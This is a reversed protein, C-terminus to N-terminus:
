RGLLLRAFGPGGSGVVLLDADSSLKNLAQASHRGEVARDAGHLPAANPGSHVGLEALLDHEEFPLDLHARALRRRVAAIFLGDGPVVHAAIVDRNLVRRDLRCPPCRTLTDLAAPLDLTTRVGCSLSAGVGVLAVVQMGSRRCDVVDRVVARALRAYVRGTYWTFPRLLLRAAPARLTGASGFAPLMRRKLVGGWARQEPCPLQIIGVGRRLYGGVDDEVGGPRGAGGLYRVNENLLCHSLL